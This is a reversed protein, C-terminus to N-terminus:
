NRMVRIDRDLRGDVSHLIGLFLIGTEGPRLTHNIREAIYRDREQLLSQRIAQDRSEIKVTARPVAPAYLQTALQYEQLLLEASETGMLTAGKEMLRLLLQHNRSGKEALERVIKIESECVPLGDQYLRVKECPMPLKELTREISRWMQEIQRTRRRWKGRGLKQIAIRKVSESLSGMDVETHIIPIHILMRERAM